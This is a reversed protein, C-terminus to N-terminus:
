MYSTWVCLVDYELYLCCLLLGQHRRFKNGRVFMCVFVRLSMSIYLKSYMCVHTCVRKAAYRTDRSSTPCLSNCLALCLVVHAGYQSSIFGSQWKRWHLSVSQNFTLECSRKRCAIRYALSMPVPTISRKILCTGLRSVQCVSRHHVV